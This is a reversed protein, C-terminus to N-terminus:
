RSSLLVPMHAMALFLKNVRHTTPLIIPRKQTGEIISLVWFPVM